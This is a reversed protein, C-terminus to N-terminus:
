LSNSEVTLKNADTQVEDSIAEIATNSNSVLVTVKKAGEMGKYINQVFGLINQEVNLTQDVSLNSYDTFADKLKQEQEKPIKIIIKM